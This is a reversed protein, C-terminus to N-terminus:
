QIGHPYDKIWDAIMASVEQGSEKYLHNGDTYLFRGNMPTLDLYPTNTTDSINRILKDFEPIFEMELEGMKPHVPLRVLWVRGFRKFFKITLVLHQLRSESLTFRKHYLQRYAIIKKRVTSEKNLSDKCVSVELWGDAHLFLATDKRLFLKYLPDNYQTLLYQINPNLFPFLITHPIEDKETFVENRGPDADPNAISWPDIALIFIGHRSDKNIKRRISELYFPGYPSHYITFAYNFLDDRSLKKNLIQPQIGQAARSTGVIMSTPRPTTFRIYFPDTYGDAQYFVYLFAPVLISIFLFIRLIFRKM